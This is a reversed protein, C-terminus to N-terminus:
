ILQGPQDGLWDAKILFLYLRDHITPQLHNFTLLDKLSKLESRIPTLM